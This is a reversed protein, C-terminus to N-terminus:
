TDSIFTLLLLQFLAQSYIDVWMNLFRLLDLSFWVWAYWQFFALFFSIFSSLSVVKVIALSFLIYKRLLLM